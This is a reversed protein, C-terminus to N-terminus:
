AKFFYGPENAANVLLFVGASAWYVFRGYTGQPQASNPTVTNGADVSLYSITWADNFPDAGPTLTSIRTRDTTNDWACFCGLAAVWMPQCKGPWLGGSVAGTFTPYHYYTGGAGTPDFVCWGGSVSQQTAGAAGLNDGNGVLLYEGSPHAALSCSGAWAMVDGVNAAWAETAVDYRQIAQTGQNRRWVSGATGRTADFCAAAGTTSGGGGYPRSAGFTAAGTTEDFIVLAGTGDDQGLPSTAPLGALAPGYGPVYVCANYTHTSRPRGDSYTSATGTAQSYSALDSPGLLMAFAPVEVMHRRMYIENGYYNSHGGADTIWLTGTDQDFSAGNWAEMVQGQGSQSWASTQTPDPDVDSLTGGPIPAWRRAVAGTVWSPLGAIGAYVGGGSAAAYSDSRATVM